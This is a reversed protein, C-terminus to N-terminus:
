VNFARGRPDSVTSSMPPAPPRPRQLRFHEPVTLRPLGERRRAPPHVTPTPETDMDYHGPEHTSDATDTSRSLPAARWAASGPTSLRGAKRSARLLKECPRARCDGRPGSRLPPGACRTSLRPRGARRLGSHPSPQPRHRPGAACSCRRCPWIETPAPQGRHCVITVTPRRLHPTRARRAITTISRRGPRSTAPERIYGAEQPALM